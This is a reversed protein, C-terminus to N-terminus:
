VFQTTVPLCTYEQLVDVIITHKQKEYRDIAVMPRLRGNPLPPIPSPGSNVNSAALSPGTSLAPSSPAPFYGRTAAEPGSQNPPSRYSHESPPRLSSQSESHHGTYDSERPGPYPTLPIPHSRSPIVPSSLAPDEGNPPQVAHIPEPEDQRGASDLSESTQGIEQLVNGGVDLHRTSQNEHTEHLTAGSGLTALQITTSPDVVPIDVIPASSPPLRSACNALTPRPKTSRSKTSPRRVENKKSCPPPARSCLLAFIYWLRRTSQDWRRRFFSVLKRLFSLFSRVTFDM